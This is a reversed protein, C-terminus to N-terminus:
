QANETTDMSTQQHLNSAEKADHTGEVAKEKKTSVDKINSGSPVPSSPHSISERLPHETGTRVRGIDSARHAQSLTYDGSDFFKRRELQHHLLEERKPLRRYLRLSRNDRGTLSQSGAENQPRNM